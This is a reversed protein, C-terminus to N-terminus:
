DSCNSHDCIEDAYGYVYSEVLSITFSRNRWGLTSGNLEFLGYDVYRGRKSNLTHTPAIHKGDKSLDLPAAILPIHLKAPSSSGSPLQGGGAAEQLSAQHANFASQQAMDAATQSGAGCGVAAYEDGWSRFGGWSMPAHGDLDARTLPNNM